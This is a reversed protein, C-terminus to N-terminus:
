SRTDAIAYELEANSWDAADIIEFDVEQRTRVLRLPEGNLAIYHTHLVDHRDVISQLAKHLSDTDLPSHVQIVFGFNYIASQPETQQLFWIARQNPSLPRLQNAEVAYKKQLFVQDPQQMQNDQTGSLLNM